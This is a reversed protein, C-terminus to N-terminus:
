TGGAPRDMPVGLMTQATLPAAVPAPAPAPAAVHGVVGAPATPASTVPPLKAAAHQSPLGSKSIGMLTQVLEGKPRANARGLAMTAKLEIVEGHGVRQVEDVFHRVSLFRKTPSLECERM